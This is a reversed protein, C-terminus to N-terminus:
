RTTTKNEMEREILTFAIKLAEIRNVLLTKQSTRDTIKELSKECKHLLSTITKLAQVLNDESYQDIM